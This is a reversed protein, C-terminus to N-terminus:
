KIRLVEGVEQTLTIAKGDPDFFEVRYSGAALLANLNTNAHLVDRVEAVQKGALDRIVVRVVQHPAVLRTLKPMKDKGNVMWAVGETAARAEPASTPRPTPPKGFWARADADTLLFSSLEGAVRRRGSESLHVGDAAVDDRTWRYGDARTADGETWFYTAWAALPAIATDAGGEFRLDARGRAQDEILWKIAWGNHYPRPEGHKAKGGGEAMFSSNHRASFYCIRLNPFHAKMLRLQAALQEELRRPRGPFDDRSDRLDDSQYWAVQVQAPTVGKAGLAEEAQDWYRRSADAIKNVDQGGRACNVVVVAPNIGALTPVLTEMEAFVQRCVSAGIGVMVIKGRPDRGGGPDLPEVRGSMRRLAAAIEGTPENQGRPYLGGVSGHYTGAGLSTLPVLREEAAVGRALVFGLFVASCLRTMRMMTQRTRTHM